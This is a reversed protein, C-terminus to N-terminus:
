TKSDVGKSSANPFALVNTDRSQVLLTIIIRAPESLENRNIEILKTYDLTCQQSCIQEFFGSDCVLSGVFSVKVNEILNQTTHLIGLAM